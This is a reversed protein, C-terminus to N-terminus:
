FFIKSIHPATIFDGKMGIPNKTSYYGFKKDYLVKRIFEDVPLYKSNKFFKLNSKM